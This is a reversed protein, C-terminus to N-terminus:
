DDLTQKNKKYIDHRMENVLIEYSSHLPTKKKNKKKNKWQLCSHHLLKSYFLTAIPSEKAFTIIQPQFIWKWALEVRGVEEVDERVYM